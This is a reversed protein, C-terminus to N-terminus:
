EGAAVAHAQEVRVADLEAATQYIIRCRVHGPQLAMARLFDRDHQSVLQGVLYDMAIIEDQELLDSSARPDSGKMASPRAHRPAIARARTSQASSRRRVIARGSAEHRRAGSGRPWDYPGRARWR